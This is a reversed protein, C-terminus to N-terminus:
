ASLLKFLMLHNNSTDNILDFLDPNNKWVLTLGLQENNVNNKELMQKTFIDELLKDIVFIIYRSGGFMTGKLLNDSKWIFNEDINYYQLDQRQQIIFKNNNECIIKNNPNPYINNINTDLFFRSCGIDMWFFCDSKFINLNIAQKLWGFKSYQIINYEPLKCEVRNPHEIKTKYNNNNLIERIRSIYKYYSANELKDEIIHTKNMYEKPRNDKMFEIFKKETVIFLNCNLELTKKIWELYDNLKRGDGDVERNIDFFATVITINIM